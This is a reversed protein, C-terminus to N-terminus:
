GLLESLTPLDIDSEDLLLGIEIVESKIVKFDSYSTHKIFGKPYLVEGKVSVIKEKNDAGLLTIKTLKM